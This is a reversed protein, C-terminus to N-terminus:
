ATLVMTESLELVLRNLLFRGRPSAAIRGPGPAMLLGAKTLEAMKDADLTVGLRRELGTLDIGEALRLGMLLAEDAAEAALVIETEIRGTGREAVRALWTEPHPETRTARRSGDIVPRGHAGPGIGVYAG